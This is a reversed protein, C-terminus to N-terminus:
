SSGAIRVAFVGNDPCPLQESPIFNGPYPMGTAPNIVSGPALSFDGAREPATPGFIKVAALGPVGTVVACSSVQGPALALVAKYEACTMTGSVLSGSLVPSPIEPPANLFVPCPIGCSCPPAAPPVVRPQQLFLLPLLPRRAPPRNKRYSRRRRRRLKPRHVLSSQFRAVMPKLTEKKGSARTGMAFHRRYTPFFLPCPQPWTLLIM